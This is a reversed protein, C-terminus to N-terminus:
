LFSGVLIEFYTDTREERACALLLINNNCYNQTRILVKLETYYAELQKLRRM